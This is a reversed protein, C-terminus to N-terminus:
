LTHLYAVIDAIEQESLTNEFAPMSDEGYLIAQIVHADGYSLDEVIDKQVSGSAGDEGHCAQCHTAYLTAGAVADGEMEAISNAKESACGFAFFLFSCYKYM